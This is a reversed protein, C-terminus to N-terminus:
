KQASSQPLNARRFWFNGFETVASIFEPLTGPKTVYCNAGLEYSRGIDGPAQSTTFVIIPIEKLAPDRKVESLVARGDKRPMNLDLVMLNPTFEAAYKGQRRLFAIAEVGDPVSYIRGRCGHRRLIDSILDTDAPNDDILLIDYIAQILTQRVAMDAVM